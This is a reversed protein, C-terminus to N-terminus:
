QGYFSFSIQAWPGQNDRVSTKYSDTREKWWTTGPTSNMDDPNTALVRLQQAVEEAMNKRSQPALAQKGRLLHMHGTGMDVGAM